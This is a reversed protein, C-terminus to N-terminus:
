PVLTCLLALCSVVGQTSLNDWAVADAASLLGARILVGARRQGAPGSEPGILQALTRLARHLDCLHQFLARKQPTSLDGGLGGLFDHGRSHALVIEMVDGCKSLSRLCDVSRPHTTPAWGHLWALQACLAPNQHELLGVSTKYCWNGDDWVEGRVVNYGLMSLDKLGNNSWARQHGLRQYDEWIFRNLLNVVVAVSAACQGLEHRLSAVAQSLASRWRFTPTGHQDPTDLVQALTLALQQPSM